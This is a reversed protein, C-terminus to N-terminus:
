FVTGNEEEFKKRWESLDADSMSLIKDAPLDVFDDLSGGAREQSKGRKSMPRPKEPIAVTPSPGAEAAGNPAAGNSWKDTYKQTIRSIAGGFNAPDAGGRDLELIDIIDVDPLAEALDDAVGQQDLVTALEAFTQPMKGYARIAQEAGTKVIQYAQGLKAQVDQPTEGILTTVAQQRAAEQQQQAIFQQQQQQIQPEFLKRAEEASVRYDGTEPDVEVPIGEAAKPPEAAAPQEATGFKTMVAKVWDAREAAMAENKRREDRLKKRRDAATYDSKNLRTQQELFIQQQEAPLAEVKERLEDALDGLTVEGPRSSPTPEDEEEAEAPPEEPAAAAAPEEAAAPPDPDPADEGDPTMSREFQIKLEDEEKLIDGVTQEAPETKEDAV